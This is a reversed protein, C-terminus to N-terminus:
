DENAEKEENLEEQIFGLQLNIEALADRIIQEQAEIEFIYTAINQKTKDM